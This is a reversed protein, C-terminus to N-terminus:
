ANQRFHRSRRAKCFAATGKEILAVPGTSIESASLRVGTAPTEGPNQVIV